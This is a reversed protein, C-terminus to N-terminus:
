EKAEQDDKQVYVDVPHLAEQLIRNLEDSSAVLQKLNNRIGLLGELAALIQRETWGGKM